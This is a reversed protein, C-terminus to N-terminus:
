REHPLYEPPPAGPFAGTPQQGQVLTQWQTLMGLARVGPDPLALLHAAIAHSIVLDDHYSPPASMSGNDQYAYVLAEDLLAQSRPILRQTRLGAALDGIALPKTKSTTEWGPKPQPPAGPVLEDHTHYLTPYALDRLKLLVAHGHNNREVALLANGYRRGLADLKAAYVELPWRGHLEAVQEWTARDYVCAADLDGQATGEAVDVAILYHRTPDPQEWITLGDAQEIAPLAAAIRAGHTALYSADFVPRGSQIFAETPDSPYEQHLQWPENDSSEHAYWADDRDPHRRWSLFIPTFNNKAAVANVWTKHFMNGLGHATSIGILAGHEITPKIGTWIEADFMQHAWEDLIVLSASKSRGASSTAPLSQISSPYTQGDRADRLAFELYSMNAKSVVCGDFSGAGGQLFPPLHDHAFAARTMLETAADDNKSIILVKKSPHFRTLWLAYSAALESAGIQRAKLLVIRRDVQFRALLDEQWGWLHFPIAGQEPHQIRVYQHIFYAPDAACAYFEAMQDVPDSITATPM